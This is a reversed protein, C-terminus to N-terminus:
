NTITIDASVYSHM